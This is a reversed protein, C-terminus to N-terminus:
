EEVIETDKFPRGEQEEKYGIEDIKQRNKEGQDIEFHFYPLVRLSVRKRLFDRMARKKRNLFDVVANDQQDPLVTVLIYADRGRNRMEIGTVTILSTKNSEREVFEAAAKKIGEKLREDKIHM